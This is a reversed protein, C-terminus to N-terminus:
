VLRIAQAKRPIALFTEILSRSLGLAADFVCTTCDAKAKPVNQVVPVSLEM